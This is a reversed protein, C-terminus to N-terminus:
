QLAAFFMPSAAPNQMNWSLSTISGDSIDVRKWNVDFESAGDGANAYIHISDAAWIAASQSGGIQYRTASGSGDFNHTYLDSVASASCFTGMGPFTQCTISPTNDANSTWAVTTGAPSIKVGGFSPTFTANNSGDSVQQTDPYTTLASASAPSCGNSMNPAITGSKVAPQGSVAGTNLYAFQNDGNRSYDCYGKGAAASDISVIGAESLKKQSVAQYNLTCSFYFTSGGADWASMQVTEGGAFDCADSVSALATGSAIDTLKITHSPGDYQVVQQADPSVYPYNTVNLDVNAVNSADLDATQLYSTAGFHMEGLVLQYSSPPPTSCIEAGGPCGSGGGGSGGGGAGGAVASYQVTTQYGAGSVVDEGVALTQLYDILTEDNTSSSFVSQNDGTLSFLGASNSNVGLSEVLSAPGAITSLDLKGPTVTDLDKISVTWAPQTSTVSVLSEQSPTDFHSLLLTDPDLATISMEAGVNATVESNTSDYDVGVASASAAVCVFASLSVAAIACLQRSCFSPM